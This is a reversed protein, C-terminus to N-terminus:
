HGGRGGAVQGPTPRRSPTAGERSGRPDVVARLARAWHKRGVSSSAQHAGPLQPPRAPGWSVDM